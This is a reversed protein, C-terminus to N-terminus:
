KHRLIGPIACRIRPVLVPLTLFNQWEDGFNKLKETNRQLRSRRQSTIDVETKQYRKTEVSLRSADPSGAAAHQEVIASSWFGSTFVSCSSPRAATICEWPDAGVGRAYCVGYAEDVSGFAASYHTTTRTLMTVCANARQLRLSVSLMKM